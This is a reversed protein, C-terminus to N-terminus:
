ARQGDVPLRKTLWPWMLRALMEGFLLGAGDAVLDAWEASRDPTFAQLAEILGGYALLGLLVAATRGPYAGHAWFALMAFALLHNTKDWGTSPMPATAPALSLVLVAVACAWFVICSVRGFRQGTMRNRGHAINDPM